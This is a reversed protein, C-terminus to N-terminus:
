PLALPLRIALEEEEGAEPEGRSPPCFISFGPSPRPLRALGARLSGGPPFRPSRIGAFPRLSGPSPHREKLVQGPSLTDKGPLHVHGWGLARSGQRRGPGARGGLDRRLASAPVWGAWRSVRGGAGVSPRWNSALHFTVM